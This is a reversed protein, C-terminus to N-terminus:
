TVPDQLALRQTSSYRYKQATQLAKEAMSVCSLLDDITAILTMIEKNSIIRTVVKSGEQATTITMGLPTKANDPSVAQSIAKATRANEYNLTIEAEM